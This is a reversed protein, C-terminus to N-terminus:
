AQLFLPPARSQWPHAPAADVRAIGVFGDTMGRARDANLAADAPALMGGSSALTQCVVCEVTTKSPQDQAVAANSKGAITKAVSADSPNAAFAHVHPQVIAVQLMIAFVAAVSQAVRLARRWPATMGRAAIM